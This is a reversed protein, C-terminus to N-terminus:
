GEGDREEWLEYHLSWGDFRSLVARAEEPVVAIEYDEDALGRVADLSDFWVITVFEVGDGAERRLLQIGKSGPIHREQIGSWIEKKLLAGYDDANKPM